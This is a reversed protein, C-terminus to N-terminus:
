VRFKRKIEKLRSITPTVVFNYLTCSLQISALVDGLVSFHLSMQHFNNQQVFSYHKTATITFLINTYNYINELVHRATQRRKELIQQTM